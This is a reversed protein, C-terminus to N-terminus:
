KPIYKFYPEAEKLARAYSPREKLRQLYAGVNKHAGTPVVMDAYFFAPAAACDAVTFAEGMAWTKGAMDREIMEYALELRARAQDVGFADRRDAPRLRDGMIRQMPEHVYLDFFRNKLRTQWAIEPDAPVFVTPGSFHLDLYDIIVSSEPVMRNRAEDVLVPFKGIPWLKRFAAHSEADGFDVLHPMFPTANEYLAILVKHCYSSLPHYHLTLSV